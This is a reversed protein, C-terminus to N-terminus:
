TKDSKKNSESLRRKAESQLKKQRAERFKEFLKEKKRKKKELVVRTRETHRENESKDSEEDTSDSCSSGDSSESYSDSDFTDQEPNPEDCASTRNIFGTESAGQIMNICDDAGPEIKVSEWKYKDDSNKMKNLISISNDLVDTPEHKVDLVVNNDTPEHKVDPVVNDDTPERKVDPVVNDDTPEHKVNFTGGILESDKLTEIHNCEKDSEETDDSDIVNTKKRETVPIEDDTEEENLEDDSKDSNQNSENHIRDNIRNDEESESDICNSNKKTSNRKLKCGVDSETGSDRDNTEIRGTKIDNESDSSSEQFIRPHYHKVKRRPRQFLVM